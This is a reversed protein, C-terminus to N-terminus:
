AAGGGPLEQGVSRVQGGDCAAPGGQGGPDDLVVDADGAAVSGLQEAEDGVQVVVLCVGRLHQGGAAVPAPGARFGGQLLGFGRDASGARGGSRHEAGSGGGQHGLLVGGPHDGGGQGASGGARGGRVRNGAALAAA